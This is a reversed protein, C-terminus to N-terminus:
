RDARELKEITVTLATQQGHTDAVNTFMGKRADVEEEIRLRATATGKSGKSRESFYGKRM